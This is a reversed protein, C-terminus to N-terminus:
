RKGRQCNWSRSFRNKYSGQIAKDAAFDAQTVLNNIGEKNSITFEGNFFRKLENAGANTADILTQKYMSCLNM